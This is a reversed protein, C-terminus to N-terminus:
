PKMLRFYASDGSPISAAPIAGVRTAGAQYTYTVGADSYGTAVNGSVEVSFGDDPTTWTLWYGVGSPIWQVATSSSTRWLEGSGQIGPGPFTENFPYLPGSGTMSIASFTGSAGDNRGDNDGDNKFMGFMPEPGTQSGELKKIDSPRYTMKFSDGATFTVHQRVVNFQNMTLNGDQIMAECENTGM